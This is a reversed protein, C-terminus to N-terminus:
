ITSGTRITLNLGRAFCISEWHGAPAEFGELQEILALLEAQGRLKTQPHLHQYRILFRMFQEPPVPEIQRRLGELTLRHIRALLRRDCWEFEEAAAESGPSLPFTTFRGRLVVGQNELGALAIEVDTPDLGLDKALLKATTPGICEIRGRVLYLIAEEPPWDRRVGAPVTIGPSAQANPWIAEVLPWRETAVWLMPGIGELQTARGASILSEFYQQWANGEAAPWVGASLLVDHLEDVDRVLPWAESRVQAIAEPDLRGLDRLAKVSLTRRM